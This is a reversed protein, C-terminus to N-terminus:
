TFLFTFVLAQLAVIFTNALLYFRQSYFIIFVQIRQNVIFRPVQERLLLIPFQNLPDM